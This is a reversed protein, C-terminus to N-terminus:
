SEWLLEKLKYLIILSDIPKMNDLDLKSIMDLYKELESKSIDIDEVLKVNLNINDFISLYKDLANDPFGCKVVNNAHKILKLTTYKNITIADEELFIYFKGSKFLYLVDNNIKKLELYKEYLM